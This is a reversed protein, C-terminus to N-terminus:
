IVQGDNRRQNQLGIYYIDSWFLFHIASLVNSKLFPLLDAQGKLFMVFFTCADSCL